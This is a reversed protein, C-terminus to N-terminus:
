HDEYQNGLEDVYGQADEDVYPEPTIPVGGSVACEAVYGQWSALGGEIAYCTVQVFGDGPPTYEASLAPPAVTQITPAGWPDGPDARYRFEAVVRWGAPPAVGAAFWDVPVDAQLAANRGVWAIVVAAM